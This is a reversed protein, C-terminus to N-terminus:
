DGHQPNEVNNDPKVPLSPTVDEMEVVDAGDALALYNSEAAIDMLQEKSDALHVDSSRPADKGNVLDTVEGDEVDESGPSTPEMNPATNDMTQEQSGIDSALLKSCVLEERNDDTCLSMGEVVASTASPALDTLLDMPQEAHSRNKAAEARRQARKALAREHKAKASPKPPAGPQPALIQKVVDKGYKKEADAKFLTIFM